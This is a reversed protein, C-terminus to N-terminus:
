IYSGVCNILKDSVRQIHRDWMLNEQITVGLFQTFKVRKLVSNGFIISPINSTIKRRHFIIYHTKDVNLTLKNSVIWKRVSELEQNLMSILNQLNDNSAYLNSDDAFLVFKLYSSSLTIDNIYLLFLLPGLISGQPVGCSTPSLNSKHGDYSVFQQRKSIYSFFWNKAKHRVGYYELKSLLINHNVTDFAKSFDLFVGITYQKKDFADLINETFSLIADETSKGKLFGFQSETIIKKEICYKYLSEFALKEIIKSIAPLISIPRYNTFLSRDGSKFFPLVKAIELPDPFTGTSFSINCLYVLVDAIDEIVVKIIRIPIEDHGSASDKM